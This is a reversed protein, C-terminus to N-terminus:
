VLVHPCWGFRRYADKWLPTFEFHVKTGLDARLRPRVKTPQVIGFLKTVITAVGRFHGPRQRGEALVDFGEPVVYCRRLSANPEHLVSCPQTSGMILVCREGDAALWNLRTTHRVPALRQVHRGGAARLRLGCRPARPSPMRFLHSRKGPASSDVCAKGVGKALEVDRELTRPYKDFDENPGFQQRPAPTPLPLSLRLHIPPLLRPTSRHSLYIRGVTPNVFISVILM